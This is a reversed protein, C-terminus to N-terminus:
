NSKRLKSITDPSVKGVLMGQDYCTFDDFLLLKKDEAGIRGAVDEDLIDSIFYQPLGKSYVLKEGTKELYKVIYQIMSGIELKDNIPEFDCRGFHMVFYPDQYTTQM